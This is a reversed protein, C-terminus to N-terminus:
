MDLATEKKLDPELGKRIATTIDDLSPANLTKTHTCELKNFFGDYSMEMLKDWTAIEAIPTAGKGIAEVLKPFRNEMSESLAFSIGLEYSKYDLIPAIGNDSVRVLLVDGEHEYFAYKRVPPNYSCRFDPFASAINGQDDKIAGLSLGLEIDQNILEEDLLIESATFSNHDRVIPNRTDAGFKSPIGEAEFHNVACVLIQIRLRTDEPLTNIIDDLPM